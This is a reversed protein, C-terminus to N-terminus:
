LPSVPINEMFAPTRCFDSSTLWWSLVEQLMRRLRVIEPLQLGDPPPRQGPLQLRRCAPQGHPQPPSAPVINVIRPQQPTNRHSPAGLWPRKPPLTM